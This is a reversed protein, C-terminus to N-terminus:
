SPGMAPPGLNLGYFYMFFNKFMKKKLVMLSLHKFNPIYCQRTTGLWIQEFSPELTWSLEAGHHGLNLDYFYMSFDEFIKKKLFVQSPHHFNPM